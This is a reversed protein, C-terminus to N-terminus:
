DSLEFYECYKRSNPQVLVTVPLGDVKFYREGCLCTETVPKPNLEFTIRKQNVLGGCLETREEVWLNATLLLSAEGSPNDASDLSLGTIKTNSSAPEIFVTVHGDTDVDSRCQIKGSGYWYTLLGPLHEYTETPSWEPRGWTRQPAFDFTSAFSQLEKKLEDIQNVHGGFFREKLTELNSIVVLKNGEQLVLFCATAPMSQKAHREVAVVVFLMRDNIMEESLITSEEVELSTRYCDLVSKHFYAKLLEEDYIPLDGESFLEVEARIFDGEATSFDVSVRRDDTISDSICWRSDGYDLRQCSFTNEPACYRDNVAKGLLGAGDGEQTSSQEEVRSKTVKIIIPYSDVCSSVAFVLMFLYYIKNCM